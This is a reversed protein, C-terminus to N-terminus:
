AERQNATGSGDIQDQHIKHTNQASEAGASHKQAQQALNIVQESSFIIGDNETIELETKYVAKEGNKCNRLEYKM